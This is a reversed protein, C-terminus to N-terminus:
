WGETNMEQANKWLADRWNEGQELRGDLKDREALESLAYERSIYLISMDAPTLNPRNALDVMRLHKPIREERRVHDPIANSAPFWQAALARLPDIADDDGKYPRMAQVAKGEESMPYHYRPIEFRLQKLGGADLADIVKQKGSIEDEYMEGQGNEVVLYMRPRGVLHPRFPNTIKNRADFYDQLQGIGQNYGEDTNWKIFNYAYEKNLTNMQSSAEHSILRMQMRNMERWPAELRRIDRAVEGPTAGIPAVYERYVFVCHCLSEKEPPRAVWIAVCRHAETNGWDLAMGIAWSDPIRFKLNDDLMKDGYFHIMLSKPIVSRNEDYMPLIRGPQSAEYNVDLEQAMEAPTMSLKQGNYWADTKWPHNKWHMSFILVDKNFRLEYFKNIKGKPTSMAIKCPSSQSCATWASYGGIPYSAFEDLAIATFRGARGLDPNSSEGSLCSGTQPNLIKMYNQGHKERDFNKPLLWNPMMNLQFRLKEFLSAPNGKTDVLEEKRSSLLGDFRREFLFAQLFVDLVVWSVGMDRSKDVVADRQKLFIASHLFRVLQEQIPFLKMPMISIGKARPDITWCWENIFHLRGDLGMSCRKKEEKILEPDSAIFEIRNKRRQSEVSIVHTQKILLDRQYTIYELLVQDTEEAIHIDFADIIPGLRSPAAICDDLSRMLGEPIGILGARAETTRVAKATNISQRSIM